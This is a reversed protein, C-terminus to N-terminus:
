ASSFLANNHTLFDNAPAEERDAFLVHVISSCMAPYNVHLNSRIETSAGAGVPTKSKTAFFKPLYDTQVDARKYCYARPSGSKEIVRIHSSM